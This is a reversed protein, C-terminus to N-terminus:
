RKAKFFATKPSFLGTKSEKMVHLPVLKRVQAATSIL